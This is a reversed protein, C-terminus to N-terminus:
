NKTREYSVGQGPPPDPVTTPVPPLKSKPEELVDEKFNLFETTDKVSMIIENEVAGRSFSDATRKHGTRIGLIYTILDQVAKQAIDGPLNITQGAPLIITHTRHNQPQARKSLDLGTRDRVFALEPSVGSQGVESRTYIVRFDNSLPNFVAVTKEPGMGSLTPTWEVQEQPLQAGVVDKSM